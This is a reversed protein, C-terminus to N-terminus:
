EVGEMMREVLWVAETESLFPRWPPMPTGPRGYLITATLFGLPKDRIAEPRLSPGLGGKLSLGHCAGCDHRLMNLLEAQRAESPEAAWSCTAALALSVMPWSHCKM